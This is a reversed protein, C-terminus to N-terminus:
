KTVVVGTVLGVAFWLWPNAFISKNSSTLDKIHAGQMEVINNQYQIVTKQTEIVTKQSQIARDASEIVKECDEDARAIPLSLVSMIM